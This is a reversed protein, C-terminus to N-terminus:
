LDSFLFPPSIIHFILIIVVDGLFHELESGYAIESVILFQICFGDPVELVSEVSESPVFRRNQSCYYYTEEHKIRYYSRKNRLVVDFVIVFSESISQRLARQGFSQAYVEPVTALFFFQRFLHEIIVISHTDLCPMIGHFILFIRRILDLVASFLRCIVRETKVCIMCVSHYELVKGLFFIEVDLFILVLRTYLDDIRDRVLCLSRLCRLIFVVCIVPKFRLRDVALGLCNEILVSFEGIDILSIGSFVSIVTYSYLPFFRQVIVGFGILGTILEPYIVVFIIYIIM